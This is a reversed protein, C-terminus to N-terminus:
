NNVEVNDKRPISIYEVQYDQGKGMGLKAAQEELNHASM